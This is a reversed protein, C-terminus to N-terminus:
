GNVMIVYFNTYHGRWDLAKNERDSV